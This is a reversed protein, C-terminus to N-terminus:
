LGEPLVVDVPALAGKWVRVETITALSSVESAAKLSHPQQLHRDLAAQSEWIETIHFRTPDELNRGYDYVICGPEKRSARMVETATAEFRDLTDPNAQFEVFAVVQM